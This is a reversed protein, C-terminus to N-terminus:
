KYKSIIKECYGSYDSKLSTIKGVWTPGKVERLFYSTPLVVKTGVRLGKMDSEYTYKDDVIFKKM